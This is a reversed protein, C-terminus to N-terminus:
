LDRAIVWDQQHEMEKSCQALVPKEGERTM